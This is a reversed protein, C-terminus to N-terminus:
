MLLRDEVLMQQQEHQKDKSQDNKNELMKAVFTLEDQECPKEQQAQRVLEKLDEMIADWGCDTRTGSSIGTGTDIGVAAATDVATGFDLKDITGLHEHFNRPHGSEESSLFVKRIDRRRKSEPEEKSLFVMRIEPSHKRTSEKGDTFKPCVCSRRPRLHAKCNKSGNSELENKKSVLPADYGDGDSTEVGAGVFSKAPSAHRLGQSPVDDRRQGRCAVLQCETARIRKKSQSMTMATSSSIAVVFPSRSGQALNALLSVAWRGLVLRQSLLVCARQLEGSNRMTKSGHRWVSLDRCTVMYTARALATRHFRCTRCKLVPSQELLGRTLRAM